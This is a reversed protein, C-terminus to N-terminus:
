FKLNRVGDPTWWTIPPTLIQRSAHQEQLWTFPGRSRQYEPVKLTDWLAQCSAKHRERLERRRPGTTASGQHYIVPGTLGCPVLEHDLLQYAFLNEEFWTILAENFGGVAEWGRRTVGFACGVFGGGSCGPTAWLEPHLAQVTSPGGHHDRVPATAPDAIIAEIDEPRFWALPYGAVGAHPTNALFTEMAILWGNNVLIDDNFIVCWDLGRSWAERCIANWGAAVGRNEPFRILTARYEKALAQFDPIAAEPSGDDVLVLDISEHPVGPDRARISRLLNRLRAASGWANSGALYHRM